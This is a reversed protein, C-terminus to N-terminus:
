KVEDLEAICTDQCSVKTCLPIDKDISHIIKDGCVFCYKCKLEGAKKPSKDKTMILHLVVHM